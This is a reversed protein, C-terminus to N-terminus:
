GNVAFGTDTTVVNAADESIVNSTVDVEILQMRIETLLSGAQPSVDYESMYVYNVHLNQNIFTNVIRFVDQNEFLDNFMSSLNELELKYPDGETDNVTSEYAAFLNSTAPSLQKTQVRINVSIIKPEKYVREFIVPGDVLQSSATHKKANVSYTFSLPLFYDGCKFYYDQNPDYRGLSVGGASYRDNRSVFPSNVTVAVNGMEDYSYAARGRLLQKAIGAEAMVIKYGRQAANYADEVYNGVTQYGRGILGNDIRSIVSDVGSSFLGGGSISTYKNRSM